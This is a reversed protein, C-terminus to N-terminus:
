GALNFGKLAFIFCVNSGVRTSIVFLYGRRRMQRTIACAEKVNIKFAIDYLTIFCDDRLYHLFALKAEAFCAIPLGVFSLCIHCTIKCAQEEGIFVYIRDKKGVKGFGDRLPM